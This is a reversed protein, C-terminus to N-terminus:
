SLYYILTLHRNHVFSSFKQIKICTNMEHINFQQENTLINDEHIYSMRSNVYIFDYLLMQYRRTTVPDCFDAAYDWSM